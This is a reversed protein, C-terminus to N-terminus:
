FTYRVGLQMTRPNNARVPVLFNSARRNGGPNGFNARDTANYIEWFLGLNSQRPMDFLYQLRLDLIMLEEGDIGNRIARGSSDVPSVIPRAADDVGRVPRDFSDNDRNVDTGVLENIPYGSYYRFMAGAGLGRWPNTNFSLVVAHRNDFNARGYDSRPDLDDSFRKTSIATGGGTSGVDRARSLTYAFRGSWRAAYRKDLSVELANYDTDLDDRTQFQLVRRFRADRAQAPILQGDPDFVAPGPRGVTGNALLRPENIDIVGTQDRGRNGVVDVSVGVNPMLEHQVGASFSWLYGLRRDGDLTPETNVFGSAGVQNRLNVLIARCAPSIVALGNNGSPRLCPDSPIIGDEPGEDEDTEYVFAKTIVADQVLENLIGILQYEYFKGAGARIVTKGSGTPDYALGFRPSVADKTQPTMTQYDYRLGLNLTLNRNVQWKDQAYANTRRDTVDFYIEGLRISFVSPYTFPNAPDFPRNHLFEFVGNDGSGAIIPNAGNQSWGAGTKFTHTGVWDSKIFTFADDITYSRVKANGHLALPGAGFDPHENDSGIDFQDRGDLEIFNFDEDFYELNGQLLDERVHGVKLENTASNGIITTWGANLTQDGGDNEIDIGDRTRLDDEWDEGVTVAAEKLWRASLNNNSNLQVDGRLFTNWVRITSTDSYSVALPASEAPYELVVANDIMTREVSGFWFARNRVIPGGGNFGWNKIGSAPNEEGRQKLFYNTGNLSDDQFYYYGRGRLDNTGSKTVANVVVGSAGGFEATYQHTLVQFESMVDLPVRAQTGQSGGLRDDNNYSGDVMFLNSGTERGNANFQGGEFTGPQLSPTLGPVMQMLSLQNRGQSPLNDIERNTVNTGIRSTTVEVVPAAASVTVQEQVAALTLTFDLTLEQGVAVTVAPRTTPQFGALEVTVTYTGPTLTPIVFRGDAGSVSTRVLGTAENAVTITAGPVVAKGTDFITGNIESRGAQAHVPLLGGALVAAVM